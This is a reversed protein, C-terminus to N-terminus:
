KTKNIITHVHVHTGLLSSLGKPNTPCIQQAIKNGRKRLSKGLKIKRGEIVM